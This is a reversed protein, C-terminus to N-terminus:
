RKRTMKATSHRPATPTYAARSNGISATGSTVLTCTCTSVFAGASPGTSTSCYTVAGISRTMFPSGFTVCTRESERKPRDAMVRTNSSPVSM